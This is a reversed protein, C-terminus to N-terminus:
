NRGYLQCRVLRGNAMTHFDQKIECGEHSRDCRPQFRCGPPIKLFNPLEGPIENLRKARQELEQSTRCLGITYPHKPATFVEETSGLEVIQGSYMVAVRDCLRSAISMDHTIFIFSSTRSDRLKRFLDIVYKEVINDLNTTPEDAIIVAPRMTLILAILARQLMGGSLQHPYSRLIQKAHPIGVEKLVKIATNMWKKDRYFASSAHKANLRIDVNKFHWGITKVPNFSGVPDQFIMSLKRGLLERHARKSLDKIDEGNLFIRNAKISATEPLLKLLSLCFVSKGSGSEGIIGLVEGKKLILDVGTIVELDADNIHFTTKLNEIELINEM